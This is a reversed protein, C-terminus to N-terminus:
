NVEGELFQSMDYTRRTPLERVSQEVVEISGLGNTRLTRLGGDGETQDPLGSLASDAVIIATHDPEGLTMTVFPQGLPKIKVRLWQVIDGRRVAIDGGRWTGVASPGAKAWYILHGHTKGICPMPKDMSLSTALEGVHKLADNALDWCEGRGVHRREAEAREAFDAIFDGYACSADYLPGGSWPSPPASWLADRTAGSFNSSNWKVRYWVISLDEFLAIGL